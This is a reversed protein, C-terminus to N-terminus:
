EGNSLSRYKLQIQSHIYKRDYFSSVKNILAMTYLKAKNEDKILSTTCEILGNIDGKKFLLGNVGHEILDINGDIESAIVGCEMLAAQMIVNPFGERHSPFVFLSSIHMYYKVDNSFGIYHILKNTEIENKTKTSIPDLDMEYPGVIILRISDITKAMKVFGEVLEEVGKDKVIRGVFLIYKYNQNFSILDKIENLKKEQLSSSSFESLDIGNTSGKGIMQLKSGKCLQNKKIFEMISNSNPWVQNAFFYTLKEIQILLRRKIGASTQLPLGAVTHIRIPVRCIWAALMGILGAKPTHSHVIDPKIRILHKILVYLAVSDKIPTIQRTLPIIIHECEERDVVRSIEPGDASMMTVDFGNSKMFKMQHTLLKDLSIPVTTIRILKTM